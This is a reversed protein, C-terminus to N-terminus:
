CLHYYRKLIKAVSMQLECGSENTNKLSERCHTIAKADSVILKRCGIKTFIQSLFIIHEKSL